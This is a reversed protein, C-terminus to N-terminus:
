NLHLLKSQATLAAHSVALQKQTLGREYLLDFKRLIEAVYEKRDIAELEKVWLKRADRILKDVNGEGYGWRERCRKIIEQRGVGEIQWQGVEQVILERQLKTAKPAVKELHLAAQLRFTKCQHNKLSTHIWGQAQKECLGAASYDREVSNRAWHTASCGLGPLGPM